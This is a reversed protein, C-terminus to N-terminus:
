RIISDISFNPLDHLYPHLIDGVQISYSSPEVNLQQFATRVLGTLGEIDIM